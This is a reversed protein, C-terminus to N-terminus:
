PKLVKAFSRLVLAKDFAEILFQKSLDHRVKMFAKRRVLPLEMLMDLNDGSYIPSANRIKVFAHKIHAYAERSNMTSHEWQDLYGRLNYQARRRPEYIPSLPLVLFPYISWFFMGEQSAQPISEIFDVTRRFTEATEGPYGVIFCASCNIGVDLLGAIVRHYMDPGAQKNMRKLIEEDASEIGIQAEVCGSRRLLDFDVTKLASARIFSMWKIDLGEDIFRACVANLDNRGLRFNDDVFRVYQVGRDSLAKLEEVLHDLPKVYNYKQAKVFNCFECNFPCGTSAQVNMVGMKFFQDPIRHWEVRIDPLPSNEQDAFVYAQGNWCATNPLRNPQTGKKLCDLTASLIREGHKDVIYLDIDPRDAASLFLFDERPSSVDYDKERSRQLLLYSSFVFPGGAVIFIDPAVSRIDAVLARLDQKTYIFTTSIIVAQPGDALLQVFHDRERYYSDILEANFGSADLYSLLRLGNLKPAGHWNKENAGAVPTVIRGDNDLYNRVNQILATQGDLQLRLPSSASFTDNGTDAVIIADIM